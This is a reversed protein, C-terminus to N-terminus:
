KAAFPPLARQHRKEFARRASDIAEHLHDLATVIREFQDGKSSRSTPELMQRILADLDKEAIKKAQVQSSALAYFRNLEEACRVVDEDVFETPLASLESSIQLCEDVFAQAKMGASM